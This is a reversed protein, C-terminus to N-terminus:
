LRLDDACLRAALLALQPDRNDRKEKRKKKQKKEKKARKSGRKSKKQRGNKKKEIGKYTPSRLIWSPTQSLATLEGAPDIAAGRGFNM